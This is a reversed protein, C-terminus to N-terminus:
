DDNVRMGFREHCLLTAAAVGVPMAVFNLLPVATFFAIGAGFGFALRRERRAVQLATPFPQLQNGLACDLYEVALAWAGFVPWIAAGLVNVGPIFLM